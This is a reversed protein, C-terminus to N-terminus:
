NRLAAPYVRIRHDTFTLGPVPTAKVMHCGLCKGDEGRPCQSRVLSAPAHCGQCKKEYEPKEPYPRGHPDHCTVCSAMLGVPAFRISMPDAIEPTSKLPANEDPMRHCEACAEVSANKRINLRSPAKVHNGGPGHCRECQVGVQMATLDPGPRVNTAHCNFCRFITQPSQPQGLAAAASAPKASPHGMTMGPRHLASYWSVRHEFYVGDRVGVPTFAFLGAGFIWTLPADQTDGDLRSRVHLGESTRSYHLEVGNREMVPRDLLDAVPSATAPRLAREHMSAAHRRTQEVHCGACSKSGTFQQAALETLSLALGCIWTARRV